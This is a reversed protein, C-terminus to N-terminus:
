IECLRQLQRRIDKWLGEVKPPLTYDKKLPFEDRAFYDSVSDIDFGQGKQHLFGDFIKLFRSDTGKPINEKLENMLAWIDKKMILIQSSSFSKQDYDFGLMNMKSFLSGVLSLIDKKPFWGTRNELFLYQNLFNDFIKRIEEEKSSRDILRDLSSELTARSDKKIKFNASLGVRFACGSLLANIFSDITQVQFFNYNKLLEEIMGFAKESAQERNISSSSLLVSMDEQSRKKLAITKIFELIREKMEFAAKNTFTIALINRFASQEHPPVSDFLLQVYRRALAYTKGAGASAEVVYIHPSNKLSM